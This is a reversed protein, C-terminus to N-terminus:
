SALKVNRSLISQRSVSIDPVLDKCSAFCSWPLISNCFTNCTLTFGQIHQWELAFMPRLIHCARANGTLWYCSSCQPHPSPQSSGLSLCRVPSQCFNFRVSDSQNGKLTSGNIGDRFSLKLSSDIAVNSEFIPTPSVWLTWVTSIHEQRFDWMDEFSPIHLLKSGCIQVAYFKWLIQLFACNWSTEHPNQSKPKAGFSWHRRRESRQM